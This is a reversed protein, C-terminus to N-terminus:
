YHHSDDCLSKIIELFGESQKELPSSSLRAKQGKLIKSRLSDDTLILDILEAIRMYDPENVLVGSGNLTEAVAARNLAVVPLGFAMAELLPVGFGEHESMSLYLDSISYYGALEEDPVHGAFIVDAVDLAKILACLMDYYRPSSGWGGVIFLRANKNNHKKYHYFVKIIDEIKKNPVIRGVFLISGSHKSKFKLINESPKVSQKSFDALLPFVCINKFGADRLDAANFNSVALGAIFFDKLSAIEIKGLYLERALPPNIKSFYHYPTVNHYRLIKKCSINKIFETLPSHISYHYIITDDQSDPAFKRYDKVSKKEREGTHSFDAYIESIFGNDRLTQRFAFAETTIADGSYLGSVFQHIRKKDSGSIIM